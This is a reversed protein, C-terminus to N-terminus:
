SVVDRIRRAAAKNLNAAADLPATLVQAVINGPPTDPAEPHPRKPATRKADALEDGIESLQSKTLATRVTPFLEGEEEEVHHRVNEILVTVKAGYRENSPDMTELEALTVKVLHHEELAELVDDTADAVFRRAAPYFIEEEVSAHVSLAETIREVIGQRRKHAGAGTKEFRVFLEEVQRHDDILMRIADAEKQASRKTSGTGRTATRKAAGAARTVPEVAKKAAGTAKKATGAAKKATGTAKKATGTATRSAASTTDRAAKKAAQKRTSTAPARSAGASSTTPSKKTPAM